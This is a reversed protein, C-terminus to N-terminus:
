DWALEGRQDKLFNHLGTYHDFYTLFEAEARKPSWLEAIEIGLDELDDQAWHRGHPVMVDRHETKIMRVDIDRVEDPMPWPLDFATAVALLVGNELRNYQALHIKVPKPLDAIYAESADHLLAWLKNKWGVLGAMIVSHQAVSYFGKCHGAYRCLMSLAHAIDEIRIRSPDPYMPTFQQGTYTEIWSNTNMRTGEIEDIPKGCHKCIMWNEKAPYCEHDPVSTETGHQMAKGRCQDRLSPFVCKAKGLEIVAVKLDDLEGM